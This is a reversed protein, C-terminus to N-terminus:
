FLGERSHYSEELTYHPGAESLKSSYLEFTNIKLPGLKFLGFHQIFPAVAEYSEERRPRAITIHPIYKKKELPIGVMEYSREIQAQLEMLEQNKNVTSYLLRPSKKSGFYDIGACSIEFPEFVVDDLAELLEQYQEGYIEGAFKLTVHFLGAGTFRCGPLPWTLLSLQFQWDEPLTLATFLRM